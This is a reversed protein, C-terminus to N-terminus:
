NKKPHICYKLFDILFSKSEPWNELNPFHRSNKIIKWTSEPTFSSYKKLTKESCEDFEGAVFISPVKIQSLFNTEDYNKLSGTITFENMGWLSGYVQANSHSDCYKLVEPKPRDKFVCLKYYEEIVELYNSSQFDYNKNAYEIIDKQEQSMQRIVDRSDELWLPISICPSAFIIGNVFESFSRYYELALISGWSHGYLIVKQIKYQRRVEELERVFRSINWSNSRVVQNSQGCGLQDYLIIPCLDSLEMLNLLYNHPYGPGGHLGILATKTGLVSSFFSFGMSCTSIEGDPINLRRTKM